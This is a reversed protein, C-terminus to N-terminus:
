DLNKPWVPRQEEPPDEPTPMRRGAETWADVMPTPPQRRRDRTLRWRWRIMIVGLAVMGGLGVVLLVLWASSLRVAAAREATEAAAIIPPAADM